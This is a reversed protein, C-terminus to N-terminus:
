IREEKKRQKEACLPYGSPAEYAKLGQYLYEAIMITLAVIRHDDILKEENESSWICGVSGLNSQITGGVNAGTKFIHRM